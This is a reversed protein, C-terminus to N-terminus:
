YVPRKYYVPRPTWTPRPASLMGAPGTMGRRIALSSSGPVSLAPSSAPSTPAVTDRFAALGQTLFTTGAAFIGGFLASSANDRATAAQARLQASETRGKYLTLQRSLEGETALDSLVDLPSGQLDVGAAGYAAEAAGVRRATDRRMQEADAATQKETDSAQRELLQANYKEAGRSQLASMLQGFGSLAAAGIGFGQGVTLLPAGAASTFLAKQLFQSM